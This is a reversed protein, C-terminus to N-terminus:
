EIGHHRLYGDTILSAYFEEVLPDYPPSVDLLEEAVARKTKEVSGSAEHLELVREDFRRLETGATEFASDPDDPWVGFHPLVVSEPGLSRLKEVADALQDPDFNPLTAPPFWADARELYVGLCEAAFLLRREPNWVAFHDPSHGPAHVMELTHEGLDVTRGEDGVEVVNSEPVPGQEGMLEFADGMARRSSEVLAGPDVLHPATMEHIYVDLDPVAGVLASAAGSHDVHIHSLVLHELDAPEVGCEAMGEVIVDTSAATGADVLAPEEDDFLYVSTVGSDFLGVDIGYVGNAVEFTSM